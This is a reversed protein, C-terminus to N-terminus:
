RAWESRDVVSRSPPMPTIHTVNKRLPPGMTLKSKVIFRSVSFILSALLFALSAFIMLGGISSHCRYLPELLQNHIVFSESCSASRPSACSHWPMARSIKSIRPWDAADTSGPLHLSSLEADHSFRSARQRIPANSSQSKSIRFRKPWLRRFSRGQYGGDAFIKQPFPYM